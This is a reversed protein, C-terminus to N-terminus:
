FQSKWKQLVHCYFKMAIDNDRYIAKVVIDMKVITIRDLLSPWLEKGKTPNGWNRKDHKNQIRSSQCCKKASGLSKQHLVRHKKFMLESRTVASPPPTAYHKPTQSPQAADKPPLVQPPPTADKTLLRCCGTHQLSGFRPLPWVWALSESNLSDDLPPLCSHACPFLPSTSVQCPMSPPPADQSPFAHTHSTRVHTHKHQGTDQSHLLATWPLPMKHVSPLWAKSPVAGQHSVSLLPLCNQVCPLSTCPLGEQANIPIFAEQAPFAHLPPPLTKSLQAHSTGTDASRTHPLRMHGHLLSRTSPDTLPMPCPPCTCDQWPERESPAAEQKPHSSTSLLHSLPVEHTPSPAM